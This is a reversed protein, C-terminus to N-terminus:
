TTNLHGNHCCAENYDSYECQSYKTERGDMIVSPALGSVMRNAITTGTHAVASMAGNRIGRPIPSRPEGFSSYLVEPSPGSMGVQALM